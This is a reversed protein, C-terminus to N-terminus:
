SEKETNLESAVPDIFDRQNGQPLIFLVRRQSNLCKNEYVAHGKCCKYWNIDKYKDREQQITLARIAHGRREETGFM